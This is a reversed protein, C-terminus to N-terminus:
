YINSSYRKKRKGMALGILWGLILVGAGALFWQLNNSFKLSDVETTM